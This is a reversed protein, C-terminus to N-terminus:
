GDIEINVLLETYTPTKFGYKKNFDNALKLADYKSVDFGFVEAIVIYGIYDRCGSAVDTEIVFMHGNKVVELEGGLPAINNNYFYTYNAKLDGEVTSPTSRIIMYDLNGDQDYDYFKDPTTKLYTSSGTDGMDVTGNSGNIFAIKKGMESSIGYLQLDKKGGTSALCSLFKLDTDKNKTQEKVYNYVEEYLAKYDDFASQGAGTIKVMNEADDLMTEGYGNVAITKIGYTSELQAVIASPVGMSKPNILYTCGTNAIAEATVSKYAALKQKASMKDNLVANDFAGECMATVYDEEGLIQAWEAQNSSVIVFTSGVKVDIVNGAADTITVIKSDKDYVDISPEVGYFNYFLCINKVGTTEKLGVNNMVWSAGDKTPIYQQWYIYDEEIKKMYLDSNYLWNIGGENPQFPIKYKKVGDNLAELANAGTGNFASYFGSAGEVQFLTGDTSGNWSVADKVAPVKDGLLKPGGKVPKYDSDFEMYFFGIYNLGKETINDIFKDSEVWANDKYYYLAWYGSYDAEQELGNISTIAVGTNSKSETYDYYELDMANKFADYYDKGEGHTWLFVGDQDEILFDVKTKSDGNNNNMVIVAAAIAVVAVVAVVAIITTTKKDM